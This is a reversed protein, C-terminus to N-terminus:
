PQAGRLAAVHDHGRAMLTTFGARDRRAVVDELRDLSARLRAVARPAHPNHAQIEFYVDPSECVVQWALDSLAGLTSSRTPAPTDPLAAAFAIATAHALGLVDAMWADHEDLPVDVIRASTQAFLDRVATTADADGADCVLVDVGRLVAIGPGFMPHISAVRAGAERLAAVEPLFPSKISAVDCLIGAPPAALWDRYLSRVAEPAVAVLVLQADSLWAQARAEDDPAQPDLVAVDWGQAGLFGVLWRGMRGAGGVVVARRGSGGAALRLREAEQATVAATICRTVLDEAVGDDLGAETGARRARELVAREQAFDVTPQGAAAKHAALERAVTVRRGAAAIIAEDLERIERRAADVDVM